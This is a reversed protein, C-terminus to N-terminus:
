LIDLNRWVNKLTILPHKVVIKHKECHKINGEGFSFTLQLNM